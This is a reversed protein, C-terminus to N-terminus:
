EIEKKVKKLYDEVEGNIITSLHKIKELSSKDYYNPKAYVIIVILDEKSSFLNKKVNIGFGSVTIEQGHETRPKIEIDKFGYPTPITIKGGVIATLPDVLVKVYIKNGQREFISSKKVYIHVFLDGTGSPTDNGKGNIKIINGNEIGSPVNIALEKKIQEYGKGDCTHCKESIIKGRGNCKPCVTQQQMVGFPTRQRSVVVGSGGCESCTRFDSPNQAGTGHCHKCNEKIEYNVKKNIGKVMENFSIEVQIEVDKSIKSKNSQKKNQQKGGFFASFIDGEDEDDGGFSFRVNQNRGTSGQNFFQAFIDEFGGGGFGQNQQNVGAHGHQDYMQKKQPDNLVEYAENVEKFNAEADPAKNRDPHFEMAKKRFARKIDDGSANKAIGLVQYYDKKAM